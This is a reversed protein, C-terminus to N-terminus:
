SMFCVDPVTFPCVTSSRSRQLSYCSTRLAHVFVSVSAASESQRQANSEIIGYYTIWRAVSDHVHQMTDHTHVYQERLGLPPFQRIPTYARSSTFKEWSAATESDSAILPGRVKFILTKAKKNKAGFKGKGEQTTIDTTLVANRRSEGSM